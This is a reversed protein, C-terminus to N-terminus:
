SSAMLVAMAAMAAMAELVEKTSKQTLLVAQLVRGEANNNIGCKSEGAVSTSDESGTDAIKMECKGGM